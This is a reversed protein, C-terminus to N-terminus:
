TTKVIVYYGLRVDHLVDMPHGDRSAHTVDFLDYNGIVVIHRNNIMLERAIEDDYLVEVM